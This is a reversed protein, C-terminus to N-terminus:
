GLAVPGLYPELYMNPMHFLCFADHCYVGIVVDLPLLFNMHSADPEGDYVPEDLIKWVVAPMGHEPVRYPAGIRCTVLDGPKFQHLVSFQEYADLIKRAEIDPNLPGDEDPNEMGAAQRIAGHMMKRFDFDDEDTDKGLINEEQQGRYYAAPLM